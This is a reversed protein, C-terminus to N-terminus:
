VTETISDTTSDKDWRLPCPLQNWPLVTLQDSANPSCMAFVAMLLDPWGGNDLAWLGPVYRIGSRVAWSWKLYFRCNDGCYLARTEFEVMKSLHPYQTKNSNFSTQLSIVILSLLWLCNDFFIINNVSRDCVSKTLVSVLLIVLCFCFDSSVTICYSCNLASWHYVWDSLTKVSCVTNQMHWFPPSPLTVLELDYFHCCQKSSIKCKCSVARCSFTRCPGLM